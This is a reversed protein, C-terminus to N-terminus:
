CRFSKAYKLGFLFGAMLLSAGLGTYFVAIFWESAMRSVRLVIGFIMMFVM